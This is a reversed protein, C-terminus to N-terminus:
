HKQIYRWDALAYYPIGLKEAAKRVGIEDLFELAEQKLSNDYQMTEGIRENM